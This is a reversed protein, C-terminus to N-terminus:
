LELSRFLSWSDSLPNHSLDASVSVTRTRRLVNNRSDVSEATFVIDQEASLEAFHAHTEFGDRRVEAILQDQSQTPRRGFFRWSQTETDGNWSVFVDVGSGGEGQLAIIVPEESPTGTWNSRFGRYSQVLCSQPASDLYSHFLVKGDANYETVAGAQGWNVFVNGNPLIQVSGQTRASLGDPADFTKIARATGKNHNLEFIRARSHPYTKIPASHAGNDFLSIYELHGSASRGRFRAHHQFAFRDEEPIDFSSGGHFGGLQWIVEGSTGNIKFVAAVNRASLLYHGEDDKDM